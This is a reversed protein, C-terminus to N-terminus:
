NLDDLNRYKLREINQSEISFFGYEEVVKGRILYCGPGNFPNRKAADPFHVTDIWEGNTDLWTGFYM